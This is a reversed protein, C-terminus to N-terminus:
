QKTLYLYEPQSIAQGLILTDGKKKYAFQQQFMINRPDEIELIFTSYDDIYVNFYEYSVKSSITQLNSDWRYISDTTTFQLITNPYNVKSTGSYGGYSYHLKWTGQFTAKTEALTQSGIIVETVPQNDKKCGVNLLIFLFFTLLIKIARM